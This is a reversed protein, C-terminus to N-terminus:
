NYLVEMFNQPLGFSGCGIRNKDILNSGYGQNEDFFRAWDLGNKRNEPCTYSQMIIWDSVAMGSDSLEPFIMRDFNFERKWNSFLVWCDGSQVQKYDM